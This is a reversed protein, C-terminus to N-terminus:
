GIHGRQWRVLWYAWFGLDDTATVQRNLMSIFTLADVAGLWALAQAQGTLTLDQGNVTTLVWGCPSAPRASAIIGTSVNEKLRAHIEDDADPDRPQYRPCTDAASSMLRCLEAVLGPAAGEQYRERFLYCLESRRQNVPCPTDAGQVAATLRGLIGARRPFDNVSGAAEDLLVAVQERTLPKYGKDGDAASPNDLFSLDIVPPHGEDTM